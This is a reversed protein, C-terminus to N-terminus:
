GSSRAWLRFKWETCDDKNQNVFYWLLYMHSFINNSLFYKKNFFRYLVFYRWTIIQTHNPRLCDKFFCPSKWVCFLCNLCHVRNMFDNSYKICLMMLAQRSWLSVRYKFHLVLISQFQTNANWLYKITQWFSLRCEIDVVKEFTLREKFFHKWAYVFNYIYLYDILM